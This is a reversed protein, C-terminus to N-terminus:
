SGSGFAMLLAAAPLLLSYANVWVSRTVGFLVALGYLLMGVAILPLWGSPSGDRGLSLLMAGGGAAYYAGLGRIAVDKASAGSSGSAPPTPPVPPAPRQSRPGALPAAPAPAHYPWAVPPPPAAVPFLSHAPASPVASSLAPTALAAAALASRPVTMDDHVGPAVMPSGCSVCFRNASHSRAGCQTCFITSEITTNM